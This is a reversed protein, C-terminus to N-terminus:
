VTYLGKLLPRENILIFKLDRCTKEYCSLENTKINFLLESNLM